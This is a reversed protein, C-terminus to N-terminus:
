QRTIDFPGNISYWPDLIDTLVKAPVLFRRGAGFTPYAKFLFLEAFNRDNYERLLELINSIRKESTTAVLIMFKPFGWHDKQRRNLLVDHYYKLKKEISSHRELGENPETGRDYEVAFRRYSGDGYQLEFLDDPELASREGLHPLPMRLPNGKKALVEHRPKYNVESAKCGSEISIGVCSGMFRHHFKDTRDYFPYLRSAAALEKRAKETNGYIIHRFCNDRSDEQEDFRELYGWDYLRALLKKFATEDGGALVHLFNSSSHGHRHIVEFITLVRETIRPESGAPNRDRWRLQRGLSDLQM